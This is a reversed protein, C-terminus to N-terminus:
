SGNQDSDTEWGGGLAQFLGVLTRLRSGRAQALSLEALLLGREADLQELYPSYGERYRRAALSRSRELANRQAALAIEQESLHAEAALGDEVERFADLAAKRYAFAAQDRGAAASDAQAALRGASFIPALISGGLSFIKIPDGTLLTSSVSGLSAALNISPMFAARAADLSRDAAVLQQEASALDPRRRLLDSPLVSPVAPLTLRSLPLGRAIPGPPRGLLTSLANEQGAIATQVSPIQQVASQYEAEAQAVDLQGSYGADARRQNLALAAQRAAVTRRLIDLQADLARLQVYGDAVAAEIALRVTERGYRTSLLQAKAAASGNRLRGFLDLDYAIQLEGQGATQVVPVGFASVSRQRQGSAVADLTPWQLARAGAFAARAQEIRLAAIALDDNHALAEDVLGALVPDGFLRWWQPAPANDSAHGARWDAPVPVAAEVPPEPRPGACASLLCVSLLCLTRRRMM